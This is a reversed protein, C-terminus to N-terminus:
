VKGGTKVWQRIAERTMVRSETGPLSPYAHHWVTQCQQGDLYVYACYWGTRNSMTCVVHAHIEVIGEMGEDFWSVPLLAISDLANSGLVM